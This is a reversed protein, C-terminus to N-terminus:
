LLRVLTTILAAQGLLAALGWKFLDAKMEAIDAKLLVLDSKTALTHEAEHRSIVAEAARRAQDQGVGASQLAEYLESVSIAM